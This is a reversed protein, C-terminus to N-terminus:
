WRIGYDKSRLVQSITLESLYLAQALQVPTLGLRDNLRVGVRCKEEQTLTKFLRGPYMNRLETNVIDKVENASFEVEEGLSRAIKVATEYEKVLRTHYEKASGFLREVSKADVFNRPLVGLVPHIEWDSPLLENSGIISHVRSKQLSSVKDGRVIESMDNFYLYGSGWKHGGPVCYDKEYPNRVAYIIESRLADKDPLPKLVCGYNDPLSPRGCKILQESIRRKQLSFVKMCQEGTGRLVGHLHNPMFEVVYIKVGFKLTALAMGAMGLRYDEDSYFLLAGKLRDFCLHYDGLPMSKYEERTTRNM